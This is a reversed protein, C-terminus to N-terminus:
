VIRRRDRSNRINSRLGYERGVGAYSQRPRPSPVAVEERVIYLQRTGHSRRGRAIRVPVKVCPGPRSRRWWERVSENLSWIRAEKEDRLGFAPSRSNRETERGNGYRPM